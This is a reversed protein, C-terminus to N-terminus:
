GSIVGHVVTTVHFWVYNISHLRRTRQSKSKRGRGVLCNAVDDRLQQPQHQDREELRDASIEGRARCSRGILTAGCDRAEHLRASFGCPSEATFVGPPRQITTMLSCGASFADLIDWSGCNAMSRGEEAAQLRVPFALVRPKGCSFRSTGFPFHLADDGANISRGEKRGESRRRARREEDGTNTRQPRGANNILGNHQGTKGQSVTVTHSPGQGIKRRSPQRQARDLRVSVWVAMTSQM